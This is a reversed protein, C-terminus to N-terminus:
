VAAGTKQCLREYPTQGGLGGHPRDYNCCDEWERLREAFLGSEDIAVGDPLDYFEDADIRHSREVWIEHQVPDVLRVAGHGAFRVRHSHTSM